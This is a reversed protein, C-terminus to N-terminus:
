RFSTGGGSGRGQLATIVGTAGATSDQLLIGSGTSNAVLIYLAILGGGYIIVKRFL